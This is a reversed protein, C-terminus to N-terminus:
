GNNVEEGQKDLAIITCGLALDPRTDLMNAIGQPTEPWPTIGRADWQMALRFLGEAVPEGDWALVLAEEPHACMYCEGRRVFEDHPQWSDSHGVGCGRSRYVVPPRAGCPGERLLGHPDGEHPVLLIHKIESM